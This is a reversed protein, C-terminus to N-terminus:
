GGEAVRLKSPYFRGYYRVWGTLVKMTLIPRPRTGAKGAHSRVLVFGRKLVGLATTLGPVSGKFFESAQGSPSVLGNPTLKIITTGTGQLNDSNNFNQFWCM